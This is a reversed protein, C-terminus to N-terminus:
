GKGESIKMVVISIGFLILLPIFLMMMSFVDPGPSLVASFVSLIIVAERWKEILYGSSLIGIRGLLILVIPLQFSLGFILHINFFIDFYEDVPLRQEVDPPNFVILFVELLKDFVTFWCVIVGAWFLLTSFIIIVRGYRESEKSVAPSVFGWLFSLIIPMGFLVALMFSIKLYIMLPAMLKIQFFKANEGLVKKYPVALIKYLEPGFYLGIGLLIGIIWLSRIIVTRLEELHEGLTMYKERENYEDLDKNSNEPLVVPPPEM